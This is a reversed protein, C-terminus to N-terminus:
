RRKGTRLIVEFFNGFSTGWDPHSESTTLRHYIEDIDIARDNSQFLLFHHLVSVFSAAAKERDEWMPPHLSLSITLQPLTSLEILDNIIFTEAGEIDIKLFDIKTINHRKIYGLLTTSEVSWCDGRISSASSTDEGTKGGFSVNVGDKDTVCNNTLVVDFLCENYSITDTLLNFTLPNAEIGYIKRVGLEAAYLITPGVWTGVDVYVSDAKLCKRMLEYTYPEWMQQSFEKWFWHPAVKFRTDNITVYEQGSSDNNVAKRDADSVPNYFFKLIDIFKNVM